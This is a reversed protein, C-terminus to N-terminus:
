GVLVGEAPDLLYAAVMVSVKVLSRSAAGELFASEWWTIEKKVLYTSMEKPGGSMM